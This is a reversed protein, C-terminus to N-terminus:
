SRHFVPTVEPFFFQFAGEARQFPFLSFPDLSYKGSAVFALTATATTQSTGTATRPASTGRIIASRGVACCECGPLKRAPRITSRSIRLLPRTTTRTTGTRWGSGAMDYLGWNNRPYAKVPSTGKWRSGAYNANEPTIENGWPYKLGDKGGHAAYEWEAETPLRGGESECYASAKDWTVQVIPHDPKSWDSNFDPAPPMQQPSHRAVFLQYAAVNVPTESMWFGKTIRVRHRPKEDDQAVSDGPIAGMWFEGPPIQVYGDKPSGKAGPAVPVGTGGGTGGGKPQPKPNVPPQLILKSALYGGGGLAVILLAGITIWRRDFAHTAKPAPTPAVPPKAAPATEALPKSPPGLLAAIDDCLGTFAPAQIDGIWSTLDAAQIERFGWPPDVGDIKAPVLIRRKRGESAEENVWDSDVSIKSWLVLVCRTKGIEEAIVQRFTKGAPIKRDWWVSWGQAALAQAIAQARPRDESAYSIFIDSM